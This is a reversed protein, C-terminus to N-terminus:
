IIENLHSNIEVPTNYAISCLSCMCTSCTATEFGLNHGLPNGAKLIIADKVHVTETPYLGLQFETEGDFSCGVKV